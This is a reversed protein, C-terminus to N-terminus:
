TFSLKSIHFFYFFLDKKEIVVKKPDLVQLFYWIGMWHSQAKGLSALKHHHPYNAKVWYVFTVMWLMATSVPVKVICIWELQQDIYEEPLHISGTQYTRYKPHRWLPVTVIMSIMWEIFNYFPLMTYCWLSNWKVCWGVRVASRAERGM